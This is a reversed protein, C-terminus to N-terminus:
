GTRGTVGLKRLRRPEQTEQQKRARGQGIGRM